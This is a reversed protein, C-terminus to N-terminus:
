VNLIIALTYTLSVTSSLNTVTLTKNSSNITGPLASGYAFVDGANFNMVQGAVQYLFWYFGNSAGPALSSPAGVGTYEISYAGTPSLSQGFAPDIVSSLDFTISGSATLTGQVFYVQTASGASVPIVPSADLSDSDTITKFGAIPHQTSWSLTAVLKCATLAM